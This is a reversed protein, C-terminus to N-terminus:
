SQGGKRLSQELAERIYRQYPIGRSKSAAKIASLLQESVRLNVVKTKPAFEFTPPFLNDADLYASLDQKVFKELEKDNRFKPFRKRM